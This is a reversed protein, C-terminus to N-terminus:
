VGFKDIFNTIEKALVIINEPVIKRNLSIRISEKAEKESYGLAKVVRYDSSDSCASHAASVYIGKSALYQVLADANIDEISLLGIFPTYLERVGKTEHWINNKVLKNSLYEWCIWARDIDENTLKSYELADVMALVLPVNVTGHILGYENKSDYENGLLYRFLRDSLWIFGIGQPGHFKHASGWFADLYQDLNDPFQVHGIASTFDSVFFNCNNKKELAIQKINFIKGTIQNVYQQFYVNPKTSHNDIYYHIYKQGFLSDHEYSKISLTLNYGIFGGILFNAAESASRCFLIKGTKVGFFKKIRDRAEDLVIHTQIAPAYQSNSNWWYNNYYYEGTFYPFTTAANDLYIM